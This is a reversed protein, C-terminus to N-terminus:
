WEGHLEPDRDDDDDSQTAVNDQTGAQLGNIVADVIRPIDAETLPLTQSSETASRTRRLSTRKTPPAATQSDQDSHERPRKESRGRTRPTSAAQNVSTANRVASLAIGRGNGRKESGGRTHPTSTVRPTSTARPTLAAQGVSSTANSPTSIARGRGNGRQRKSFRPM